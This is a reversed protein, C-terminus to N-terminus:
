NTLWGDGIYIYSALIINGNTVAFQHHVNHLAQFFCSCDSWFDHRDHNTTSSTNWVDFPVNAAFFAYHVHWRRPSRPVCTGHGKHSCWRPQWLIEPPKQRPKNGVCFSASIFLFSCGQQCHCYSFSTYLGYPYFWCAYPYLFGHTPQRTARTGQREGQDGLLRWQEPRKEPM